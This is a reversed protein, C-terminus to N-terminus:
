IGSSRVGEAKALQEITLGTTSKVVLDITSALCLFVPYRELAM